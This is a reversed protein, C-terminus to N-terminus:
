QDLMLPITYNVGNIRVRLLNVANAPIAPATNTLAGNVGTTAEIAIPSAANLVWNGCVAGEGLALGNNVGPVIDAQRGLLTNRIETSVNIGAQHGVATNQDGTCSQLCEFGHATNEVGTTLSQLSRTGFATNELGNTCNQMSFAGCSTNDIGSATNQQSRSGVATNRYGDLCRNLAQNGYATNSVTGIFDGMNALAGIGTATNETPNVGLLTTGVGVSEKAISGSLPVGSKFSDVQCTATTGSCDNGMASAASAYYDDNHYRPKVGRPRDTDWDSM